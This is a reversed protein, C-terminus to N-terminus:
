QTRTLAEKDAWLGRSLEVAEIHLKKFLEAYKVNPSITMPQAYGANIISANLFVTESYSGLSAMHMFEANFGSPVSIFSDDLNAIGVLESGQLINNDPHYWIYGLIRGYKDKQQVDLELEVKQGEKILRRVFETAEKAMKDLTGLDVNWKQAQEVAETSPNFFARDVGEPFVIEPADIGILEVIKGNTLKITNGDVVKEVTYTEAFAITTFLIFIIAILRKM